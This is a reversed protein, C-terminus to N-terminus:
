RLLLDSLSPALREVAPSASYTQVVFLVTYISALVFASTLVSHRLLEANDLSRIRADRSFASRIWQGSLLFAFLILFGFLTTQLFAHLLLLSFWIVIPWGCEKVFWLGPSRFHGRDQRSTQISM